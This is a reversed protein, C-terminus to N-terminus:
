WIEMEQLELLGNFLMKACRAFSRWESGKWNATSFKKGSPNLITQIKREVDLSYAENYWQLRKELLQIGELGHRNKISELSLVVLKKNLGLWLNHLGCYPTSDFPNFGILGVFQELLYSLVIIARV